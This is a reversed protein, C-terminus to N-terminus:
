RLPLTFQFRSGQGLTSEAWVRGGHLEVIQRVIPLGLGTGQIYRHANSEIRAYRDFIKELASPPIGMGHDDMTVEARDDRTDTTIMIVGGHPSYKIANNLLNILVQVLKDRDGPLAPLRADLQLRIPHQPAGPTLREVVGRVLSNLDVPERHLEMRGSEMRELDLLENIMRNLRIAEGHIDEAYEKVEAPTFEEDRLIESFGQIVTLPTRFEHSVLSVFDTKARSLHELRASTLQQATLATALDAEVRCRHILEAEREVDTALLRALVVLLEVQARTFRQPDPDVACLTGFFRGDSLYIPVGLYSGINPFARTAPHGRYRTDTRTNEILVPLPQPAGAVISCFTDPLTLMTDAAVDCGGGANYTALIESYGADTTIRALFSTRMGLHDAILRLTAERALQGSGFSQGALASLRDLRAIAEDDAPSESPFAALNTPPM